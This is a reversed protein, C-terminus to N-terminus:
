PRRRTRHKLPLDRRQGLRQDHHPHLTRSQRQNTPTTAPHPPPPYRNLPLRHRSPHLPLRARQRHPTTRSHHRLPCFFAIARRLFGIATIAKEDSLVEAYALRSYDDIAIHVYEWGVTRRRRGEHDRITRKRHDAGNSWRRGAGPEFRGLKKVDIHILEGPRSREYRQPQELGLRGLRGM